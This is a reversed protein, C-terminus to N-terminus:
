DHHDVDTLFQLEASSLEQKATLFRQRRSRLSLRDFGDAFLAQDTPQVPRVVVTSGDPLAVREGVSRGPSATGSRRSLRTARARRALGAVRHADANMQLEHQRQEALATSFYPNLM